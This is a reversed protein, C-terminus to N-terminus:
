LGLSLGGASLALGERVLFQMGIYVKDIHERPNLFGLYPRMTGDFSVQELNPYIHPADWDRGSYYFQPRCGTFAPM